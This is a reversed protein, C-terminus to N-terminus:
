GVRCAVISQALRDPDSQRTLQGRERMVELGRALPEEWRRFAADLHPLYAPDNKLEAAMSGLPCAFPGDLVRHSEMVQESWRKLGEWSDAHHIAPQAALILEVQRDIVARILDARDDFYHYLQSKGCGAAALVDDLSTSAVGSQRMMTAAADVIAARSRLGRPSLSPRPSEGTAAKEPARTAAM